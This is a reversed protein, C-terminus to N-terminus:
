LLGVAGSRCLLYTSTDIVVPLSFGFNKSFFQCRMDVVTPNVGM